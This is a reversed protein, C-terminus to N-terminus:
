FDLIRFFLREPPLLLILANAAFLILAVAAIWAYVTNRSVRHAKILTARLIKTQSTLSLLLGAIGGAIVIIWGIFIAGIGYMILIWQLGRLISQGGMSERRSFMIALVINTVIMGLYSSVAVAIGRLMVRLPNTKRIVDLIRSGITFGCFAAISIPLEAFFWLGRSDSRNASTDGRAFVVIFFIIPVCAFGAFWGAAILRPLLGLETKDPLQTM